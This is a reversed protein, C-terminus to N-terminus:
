YFLNYKYLVLLIIIALNKSTYSKSVPRFGLLVKYYNINKILFYGTLTLFIKQNFSTWYDVAV